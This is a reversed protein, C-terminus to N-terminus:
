RILRDILAGAVAGLVALITGAVLQDRNRRWFSPRQSRYVPVIRIPPFEAGFTLVTGGMLSALAGLLLTVQVVDRALAGALPAVVAGGLMMPLGLELPHRRLPSHPRCAQDLHHFVARVAEREEAGWDVSARYDCSAFRGTCISIWGESGQKGTRPRPQLAFSVRTIRENALASLADIDDAAFEQGGRAAVSIDVTEFGASLIDSLRELDERYIDLPGTVSAIRDPEYQERRHLGKPVRELEPQNSRGGTGESM